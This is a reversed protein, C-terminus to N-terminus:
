CQSAALTIKGPVMNVYDRCGNFINKFFTGIFNWVASGHLKVPLWEIKRWSSKIPQKEASLIFFDTLFYKQKLM